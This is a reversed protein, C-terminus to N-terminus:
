TPSYTQVFGSIIKLGGAAYTGPLSITFSDILSQSNRRQSVSDEDFSGNVSRYKWNTSSEKSGNQGDIVEQSRSTGHSSYRELNTIESQLLGKSGHGSSENSSRRATAETKNSQIAEKSSNTDQQRQKVDFDSIRQSNWSSKDYKGSDIHSSQVTTKVPSKSGPSEQTVSYNSRQTNIQDFSTAAIIENQIIEQQYLIDTTTSSRADIYSDNLNSFSINHGILFDTDDSLRDQSLVSHVDSIDDIFDANKEM